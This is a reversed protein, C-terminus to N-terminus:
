FWGRDRVEHLGMVDVVSLSDADIVLVQPRPAPDECLAKVLHTITRGIQVVARGRALEGEIWAQREPAPSFVIARVGSCLQAAPKPRPLPRTRTKTNRDTM